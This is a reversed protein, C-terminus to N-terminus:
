VLLVPDVECLLYRCSPSYENRCFYIFNCFLCVFGFLERVMSLSEITKQAIANLFRRLNPNIQSKSSKFEYEIDEHRYFCKTESIEISEIFFEYIPSYHVRIRKSLMLTPDRCLKAIVCRFISTAIGNCSSM